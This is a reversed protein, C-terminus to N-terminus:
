REGGSCQPGRQAALAYSSGMFGPLCLYPFDDNLTVTLRSINSGHLNQSCAQSPKCEIVNPVWHGVPAPLVYTASSSADLYLSDGRDEGRDQSASNNGIFTEDVLLVDTAQLFIAGGQGEATNNILRTQTIALRLAGRSYLAGGHGAASNGYLECSLLDVQAASIRIAGGDVAGMRGGNAVFYSRWIIVKGGVIHLAAGLNAEFRCDDILLSGNDGGYFKVAPASTSNEFRLGKLRVPPAGDRITLISAFPAESTRRGHHRGNAGVLTADGSGSLVIASAKQATGSIIIPETHHVGKQLHLYAIKGSYREMEVLSLAAQLTLCGGSDSSEDLRKAICAAAAHIPM